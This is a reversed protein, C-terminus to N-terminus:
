KDLNFLMGLIDNKMFDTETLISEFKPKGLDSKLASVITDENENIMDLLRELQKKRFSVDLTIGTAFTDRLGNIMSVIETSMTSVKDTVDSTSKSSGKRLWM